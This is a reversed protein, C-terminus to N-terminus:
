YDEIISDRRTWIREEANYKVGNRKLLICMGSVQYDVNFTDKVYKVITPITTKENEDIWTFLIKLEDKNLKNKPPCNGPDLFVDLKEYRYIGIWRHILYTQEKLFYSIAPVRVGDNLLLVSNYKNALRKNTTAEFAKEIKAKDEAPLFNMQLRNGTNLM